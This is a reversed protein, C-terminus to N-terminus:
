ARTFGAGMRVGHGVELGPRGRPLRLGGVDFLHTTAGGGVLWGFREDECERGIGFGDRKQGM